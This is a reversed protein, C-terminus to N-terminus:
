NLEIEIKKSIFSGEIFNPNQLMLKEDTETFYIEFPKKHLHLSFVLYYKKDPELYYDNDEYSIARVKDWILNYKITLSENPKLTTLQSLLHKKKELLIQKKLNTIGQFKKMLSDAKQKLEIQRKQEELSNIQKRRNFIPINILTENEFLSYSIANSLSANTDNLIKKKDIFFYVEQSHINKITCSIEYIFDAKFENENRNISNIKFELKNQSFGFLNLSLLIIYLFIKM